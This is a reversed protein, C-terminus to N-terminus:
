VDCGRYRLFAQVRWTRVDDIGILSMKSREMCHLCKGNEVYVLFHLVGKPLRLLVVDGFQLEEKKVQDFYKLLIELANKADDFQFYVDFDLVEYIPSMCGWVHGDKFMEYPKGILGYADKKSIM